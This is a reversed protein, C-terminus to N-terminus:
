WLLLPFLEIRISLAIHRVPLSNRLVCLRVPPKVQVPSHLLSSRVILGINVGGKLSGQPQVCCALMLKHHGFGAFPKRKSWLSLRCISVCHTRSNLVLVGQRCPYHGHEHPVAVQMCGTLKEEPVPRSIANPCKPCLPVSLLLPKIKIRYWYSCEHHVFVFKAPHIHKAPVIPHPVLVNHSRERLAVQRLSNLILINCVGVTRVVVKHEVQQLSHLACSIFSKHPSGFSFLPHKTRHIVSCSVYQKLLEKLM